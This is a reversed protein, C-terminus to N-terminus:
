LFLDLTQLNPNFFCVRGFVFAPGILSIIFCKFFKNWLFSTFFISIMNSKQPNKSHRRSYSLIYFSNGSLFITLVRSTPMATIYPATNNPFVASIIPCFVTSCPYSSTMKSIDCLSNNPPTPGVIALSRINRIFLYVDISDYIYRNRPVVIHDSIKAQGMLLLWYISYKLPSSKEYAFTSILRESLSTCYHWLSPQRFIAFM